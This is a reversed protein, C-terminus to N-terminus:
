YNSELPSIICFTPAFRCALCDNLNIQAQELKEGALVNEHTSVEYYAGGSDVRIETQSSSIDSFIHLMFPYASPTVSAAAPHKPPNIQQVPKICAQSPTIFDNLDTLVLAGSFTMPHPCSPLAVCSCIVQLPSLPPHSTMIIFRYSLITPVVYVFFMVVHYYVFYSLVSLPICLSM